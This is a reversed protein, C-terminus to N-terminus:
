KEYTNEFIKRYSNVIVEGNAISSYAKSVSERSANSFSEALEQSDFIKSVYYPIMYPEDVPYIYGNEGHKVFDKVGGVDSSVVPTGVIMAEGLSNPSNEILSASLFVNANLLNQVVQKESQPGLFSVHSQLKNKKLLYKLYWGLPSRRLFGKFGSSGIPSNGGIFLHLDPYKKILQPLIPLVQHLGKIQNSSQSFYISHKFSQEQKWHTNYFSSRLTEGCHLYTVSPNIAGTCAEDWETRGMVYCVQQIAAIENKGAKKMQLSKSALTGRVLSSPIFLHRFFFPIGITCHKAIVSVMGQIHIVTKDPKGFYEIAVRSHEFETGFIHLIDPNEKDIINQIQKISKAPLKRRSPTPVFGFKKAQYFGYFTISFAELYGEKLDKQSLVPFAVAVKFDDRGSVGNIAGELWGGSVGRQSVAGAIPTNCFWLVKM